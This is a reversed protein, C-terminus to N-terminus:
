VSRPRGTPSTRPSECLVLPTGGHYEYRRGAVELVALAGDVTRQLYNVGPQPCGYSSDGWTVSRAEVVAVASEDVGLRAALDAVADLILPESHDIDWDDM